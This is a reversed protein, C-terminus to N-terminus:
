ISESELISSVVLFIYQSNDRDVIIMYCLIHLKQFLLFDICKSKFVNIFLLKSATFRFTIKPFFCM